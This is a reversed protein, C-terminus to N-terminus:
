QMRKGEFNVEFEKMKSTQFFRSEEANLVYRLMLSSHGLYESVQLIVLFLISIADTSSLPCACM